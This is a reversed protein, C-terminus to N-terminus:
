IMWITEGYASKLHRHGIFSIPTLPLFHPLFQHPFPRGGGNGELGFLLQMHTCAVKAELFLLQSENVLACEDSVTQSPIIQNHQSNFNQLYANLKSNITHM